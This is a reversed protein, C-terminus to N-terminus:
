ERKSQSEYLTQENGGVRALNQEITMKLAQNDAIHNNIQKGLQENLL